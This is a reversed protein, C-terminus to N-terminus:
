HSYDGPGAGPATFVHAGSAKFSAIVSEGEKLGLEEISTTTILAVLSLPRGLFVRVLPGTEELHKISTKINNRATSRHKERSLVIQEPRIGLWVHANISVTSMAEISCGGTKVTILGNQSAVVDGELLNEMGVLRASALTSPSTFIEHATGIQALTKNMVVGIRQALRRGQVMNHTTLIITMNRKANAELVLHEIVEVSLPDLNTTPEDLLLLEPNTILARALAVRQAEGGSLTRIDRKGYGALAVRDLLVEVKDAISRRPQKRILLPYAINHFVSGRFLLPKQFVMAMRRRTATTVARPAPFRRDDFQIYGSTPTELLNLLRLLTTKGAGTPGILAFVEGSHVTISVDELVTKNQYSHSLQVASIRRM